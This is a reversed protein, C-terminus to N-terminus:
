ASHLEIKQNISFPKSDAFGSIQISIHSNGPRKVTFNLNYVGSDKELSVIPDSTIEVNDSGEFSVNVDRYRLPIVYAIKATSQEDVKVNARKVHKVSLTKFASAQYHQQALPHLRGLGFGFSGSAHLECAQIATGSIAIALVITLKLGIFKM